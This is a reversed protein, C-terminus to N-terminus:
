SINLCLEMSNHSAFPRWQNPTFGNQLLKTQWVTPEQLYNVQGIFRHEWVYPPLSHVNLVMYPLCFTLILCPLAYVSTAAIYFKVTHLDPRLNLRISAIAVNTLVFSGFYGDSKKVEQNRRSTPIWKRPSFACFSIHNRLPCASPPFPLRHPSPSAASTRDSPLSTSPLCACSLSLPWWARARQTRPCDPPATISADHEGQAHTYVATRQVSFRLTCQRLTVVSCLTSCPGPSM